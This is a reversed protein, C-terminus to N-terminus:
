RQAAFVTNKVVEKSERPRFQLYCTTVEIKWLLFSSM